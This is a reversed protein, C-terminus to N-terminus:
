GDENKDIITCTNILEKIYEDHMDISVKLVKLTKPVNKIESIIARYINIEDTKSKREQAVSWNFGHRPYLNEDDPKDKISNIRDLAENIQQEYDRILEEGSEAEIGYNSNSISKDDIYDRINPPTLGCHSCKVPIDVVIVFSSSSSNTIFDTRIKM